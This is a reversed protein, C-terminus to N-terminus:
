GFVVGYEIRNHHKALIFILVYKWSEIEFLTSAKEKLLVPLFIKNEVEKTGM